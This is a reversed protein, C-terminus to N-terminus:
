HLVLLLGVLEVEYVMHDPATGLHFRLVRPVKDQQFLVAAAGVQGDIGLGDSYVRTVELEAQMSNNGQTMDEEDEGELGSVHIDAKLM